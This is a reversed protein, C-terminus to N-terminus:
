SGSHPLHTVSGRAVGEAGKGGDRAHHSPESEQTESRM